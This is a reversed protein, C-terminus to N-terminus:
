TRARIRAYVGKIEERKRQARKHSGLRAKAFKYARKESTTGGTQPPPLSPRTTTPPHPTTLPLVPERVCAGGRRVLWCAAQTARGSGWGPALRGSVKLIDLIRKEYPAMGAVERIVERVVKVRKDRCHGM